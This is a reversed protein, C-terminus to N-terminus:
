KINTAQITLTSARKMLYKCINERVQYNAKKNENCLRQPHINQCRTEKTPNTKNSVISLPNQQLKQRNWLQLFLKHKTASAKSNM